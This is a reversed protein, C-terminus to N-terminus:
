GGNFRVSPDRATHVMRVAAAFHEREKPLATTRPIRHLAGAFHIFTPLFDSDVGSYVRNWGERAVAVVM